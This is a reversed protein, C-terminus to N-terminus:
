KQNEIKVEYGAAAWESIGGAMSTVHKFGISKLLDRAQASRNGSRCVIVVPELHPVDGSGKALSGLPILTAGPIHGANWEHPERVDLIFVGEQFLKYAQAVSVEEPLNKLDLDEEVEAKIDDKEEPNNEVDVVLPTATLEVPSALILGNQKFIFFAILAIPIILLTWLWPSLGKKKQQNTKQNKKNESQKKM